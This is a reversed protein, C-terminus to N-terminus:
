RIEVTIRYIRLPPVDKEWPRLYHMELVSAGSAQAEFRFVQHEIAGPIRGGSNEFTPEGLAKLLEPNIKVLKWSHGTGPTAELRVALTGGKAIVIQRGNDKDTVITPVQPVPMTSCSGQAALTLIAVAFSTIGFISRIRRAAGFMLICKDVGFSGSSKETPHCGFYEYRFLPTLTKKPPYNTKPM